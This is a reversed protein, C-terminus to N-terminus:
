DEKTKCHFVGNPNAVTTMVANVGNRCTLSAERNCSRGTGLLRVAPRAPASHEFGGMGGHDFCDLKELSRSEPLSPRSVESFDFRHEGGNLRGRVGPPVM